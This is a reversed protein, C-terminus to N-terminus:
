EGLLYLKSGNEQSICSWTSAITKSALNRPLVPFSQENTWTEFSVSSQAMRRRSLDKLQEGPLCLKSNIQYNLHCSLRSCAMEWQCHPLSLENPWTKRSVSSLGNEWFICSQTFIITITALHDQFPWKVTVSPFVQRIQQPRLSVSSQAIKTKPRCLKSDNELSFSSPTSIITKTVLYDQFPLEEIVSPFVRSAWKNLDRPDCLKSGNNQSHKSNNEWFISWRATRRPSAAELRYLLKLPLIKQCCHSLSSM